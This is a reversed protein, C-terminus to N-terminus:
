LVLWTGVGELWVSATCLMLPVGPLNLFCMKSCGMGLMEQDLLLKLVAKCCRRAELGQLSGGVEIQRPLCPHQECALIYLVKVPTTLLGPFSAVICSMVVLYTYRQPLIIMQSIYFLVQSLPSRDHLLADAQIAGTCVSPFEENQSRLIFTFIIKGGASGAM